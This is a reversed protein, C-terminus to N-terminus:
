GVADHSKVAGRGLKRCACKGACLELFRLCPVKGCRLLEQLLEGFKTPASFHTTDGHVAACDHRRIDETENRDFVVHKYIRDRQLVWAIRIHRNKSGLEEM